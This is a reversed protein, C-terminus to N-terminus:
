GYSMWTTTDTCCATSESKPNGSCCKANENSCSSLFIKLYFNNKSQRKLFIDSLYNCRLGRLTARNM